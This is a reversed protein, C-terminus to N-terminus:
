HVLGPEPDVSTLMEMYEQAHSEEILVQGRLGSLSLRRMLQNYLQLDDGTLRNIIENDQLLQILTSAAGALEGYEGIMADRFGLSQIGGQMEQRIDEKIRGMVEQMSPRKETDRQQDINNKM